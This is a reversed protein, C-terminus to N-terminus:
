VGDKTNTKANQHLREYKNDVPRKCGRCLPVDDNDEDNESPGIWEVDKSIGCRKVRVEQVDTEQTDTEQAGTEQADTEQVNTTITGRAHKRRRQRKATVPMELSMGYLLYSKLGRELGLTPIRIFLNEKPNLDIFHNRIKERCLHALSRREEPNVGPAAALGQMEGAAYLLKLSKARLVYEKCSEECCREIIQKYGQQRSYDAM